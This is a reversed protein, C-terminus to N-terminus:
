EQIFEQGNELCIKARELMRGLYMAHNLDSLALNRYLEHQLRVPNKGRYEDLLLGRSFHRVVIEGGEMHIHFVGNPDEKVQFGRKAAIGRAADLRRPDVSISHSIVTVPGPEMNLANCVTNQIKMMGYFNKLWADMSNHTRFVATIPLKGQFRRFCVSVLCPHGSPSGIDQRSDWLAIYSKRDEPDKKLNGICEAVANVGFYAGLRNGYTYSTDPPLETDLFDEYYRTFAEPDFGFEELKERSIFGPEEVIVRVNQLELRDGKRLHTLVGFRVMRFILEVWATLPDEATINHNRPNSPFSKVQTTPLPIEVREGTVNKVFDFNSIFDRLRDLEGDTKLEGAQFVRPPSSFMGPKVLRDMMRITGVIRPQVEGLFEVEELGKEFFNALEVGSGSRDRGCVVLCTIQPNYLLNRLLEPLGNGYLNGAAAIPSTEPSLDIGATKLRELVWDIESWLTVLGIFGHPNIVRVKDAFHLPIFGPQIKLGSKKM